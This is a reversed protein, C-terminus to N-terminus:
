KANPANRWIVVGDSRLGIEVNQIPKPHAGPAISDITDKEGIVLCGVWNTTVPSSASNKTGPQARISTLFVSGLVIFAVAISVVGSLKNKM